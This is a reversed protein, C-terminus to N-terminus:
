GWVEEGRKDDPLGPAGQDERPARVDGGSCVSQFVAALQPCGPNGETANEAHLSGATTWRGGEM